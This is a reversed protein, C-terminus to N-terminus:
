RLYPAFGDDPEPLDEPAAGERVLRTSLDCLQRALYREGGGELQFTRQRDGDWDEAAEGRELTEILLPWLDRAQAPDGQTLDEVSSRYSGLRARNNYTLVTLPEAILDLLTEEGDLLARLGPVLGNATTCVAELTSCLGRFTSADRDLLWAADIHWTALQREIPLGAARRREHREAAAEHTERIALVVADAQPVLKLVELQLGDPVILAKALEAHMVAGAIQEASTEGFDQIRADEDRADEVDVSEALVDRDVRFGNPPAAVLGVDLVSLVTGGPKAERTAAPRAFIEYAGVPAHSGREFLDELMGATMRHAQIFQEDSVTVSWGERTANGRAILHGHAYFMWPDTGADPTPDEIIAGVFGGPQGYDVHFRVQQLDPDAPLTPDNASV